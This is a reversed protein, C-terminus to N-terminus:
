FRRQADHKQRWIDRSALDLDRQLDARERPTLVGDSKYLREVRRIARQEAALRATERATLAGSHVGQAIRASHRAQRQDVYPDAPHAAAPLTAALLLLSFAPLLKM